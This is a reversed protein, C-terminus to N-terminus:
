VVYSCWFQLQGNASSYIGIFHFVIIIGGYKMNQQLCTFNISIHTIKIRIGDNNNVDYTLLLPSIFAMELCLQECRHENTVIWSCICM